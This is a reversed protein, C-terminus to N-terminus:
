KRQIRELKVGSNILEDYTEFVKINLIQKRNTTILSCKSFGRRNHWGDWLRRDLASQYKECNVGIPFHGNNIKDVLWDDFKDPKEMVEGDENTPVFDGLNPPAKLYDKKGMIITHFIEYKFYVNNYLGIDYDNSDAYDLYDIMNKEYKM